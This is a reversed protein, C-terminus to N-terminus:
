KPSHILRCRTACIRGSTCRIGSYHEKWKTVTQMAQSVETLEFDTVNKMNGDLVAWKGDKKVVVMGNDNLHADEYDEENLREFMNSYIGYKGDKVGIIKDGAIDIVQDLGNKDVANWYGNQDILTYVGDIKEPFDQRTM